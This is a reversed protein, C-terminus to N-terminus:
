SCGSVLSKCLGTVKVLRNRSTTGKVHMGEGTGGWNGKIKRSAYAFESCDLCVGKSAPLHHRCRTEHWIAAATDRSRQTAYLEGESYVWANKLPSSCGIM